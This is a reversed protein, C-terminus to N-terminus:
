IVFYLENHAHECLLLIHSDTVETNSRNIHNHQCMTQNNILTVVVNQQIVM